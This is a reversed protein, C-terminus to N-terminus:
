ISNPDSRFANVDVRDSGPCSLHDIVTDTGKTSEPTIIFRFGNLRHLLLLLRFIEVSFFHLLVLAKERPPGVPCFGICGGLHHIGSFYLSKEARFFCCLVLLFPLCQWLDLALFLVTIAPELKLVRRRFCPSLLCEPVQEGKLLDSVCLLKPVTICERCM